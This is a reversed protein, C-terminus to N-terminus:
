LWERERKGEKRKAKRKKSKQVVVNLEKRLWVAVAQTREEYEIM